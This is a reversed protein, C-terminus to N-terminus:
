RLAGSAVHGAAAACAIMAESPIPDINTRIDYYQQWSVPRQNGTPKINKTLGGFTLPQSLHAFSAHTLAATTDATLQETAVAGLMVYPTTLGIMEPELQLSQAIQERILEQDLALQKNRPHSVDYSARLQTTRPANPAPTIGIAQPLATVHHNAALHSIAAITDQASRTRRRTTTQALAESIDTSDCLVLRLAHAPRLKWSQPTTAHRSLQIWTDDQLATAERGQAVPRIVDFVDFLHVGPGPQTM